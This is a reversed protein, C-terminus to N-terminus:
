PNSEGNGTERHIVQLQRLLVVLQDDTAPLGLIRLAADEEM